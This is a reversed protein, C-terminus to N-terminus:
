TITDDIAEYRSVPVETGELDQILAQYKSLDPSMEMEIETEQQVQIKAFEGIYLIRLKPMPFFPFPWPFDKPYTHGGEYVFLGQKSEYRSTRDNFQSLTNNEDAGIKAGRCLLNHIMNERSSPPLSKHSQAFLVLRAAHARTELSIESIIEAILARGTDSTIKEGALFWWSEDCFLAFPKIHPMRNKRIWLKFTQFLELMWARAEDETDFANRFCIINIAQKKVAWWASGADPVTVVEPHNKMRTYKHEEENWESIEVDCGKPCIIRVPTGMTILPLMEGNKASDIWIPTERTHRMWNVLWYGKQTKGSGSTGIVFLSHGKKFLFRFLFTFGRRELAFKRQKESLKALFKPDIPTM